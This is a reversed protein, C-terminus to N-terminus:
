GHAKAKRPQHEGSGYFDALSKTILSTAFRGGARQDDRNANPMYMAGIAAPDNVEDIIVIRAIAALRAGLHQTAKRFRDGHHARREMGGGSGGSGGDVHLAALPNSMGAYAIDHDNVYLKPGHADAETVNGQELLKRVPTAVVQGMVLPTGKDTAARVELGLRGRWAGRADLPGGPILALAQDVTIASENRKKINRRKRM